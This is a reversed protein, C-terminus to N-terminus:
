SLTAANADDQSQLSAAASDINDATTAMNNGLVDVNGEYAALNGAYGNEFARGFSDAGWCKDHRQLADRLDAVLGVYQGHVTRLKDVKGRLAEVDLRTLGAM